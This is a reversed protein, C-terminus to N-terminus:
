ISLYILNSVIRVVVSFSRMSLPLPFPGNFGWCGGPEDPFTSLGDPNGPLHPTVPVRQDNHQISGRIKPSSLTKTYTTMQAMARAASLASAGQRAAARVPRDHGGRRQMVAALFRSDIM